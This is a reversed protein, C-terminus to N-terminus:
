IFDFGGFRRFKPRAHYLIFGLGFPMVRYFASAAMGVAQFHRNRRLAPIALTSIFASM